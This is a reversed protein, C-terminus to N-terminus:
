LEHRRFYYNLTEPSLGIAEVEDKDYLSYPIYKTWTGSAVDGVEMAEICKYKYEGSLLPRPPKILWVILMPVACLAFLIGVLITKPLNKNM